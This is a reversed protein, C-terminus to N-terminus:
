HNLNSKQTKRQEEGTQLVRVMSYNTCSDHTPHPPIFCAYYKCVGHPNTTSKLKVTVVGRAFRRQRQQIGAITTSTTIKSTTNTDMAM